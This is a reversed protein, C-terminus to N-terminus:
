HITTDKRNKRVYDKIKNNFEKSYENHIKIEIPLYFLPVDALQAPVQPCIFRVIDKETTIIIKDKGLLNDFKERILNLDRESYLHHDSFKLYEMYNVMRSVHDLLPYINEIGAFILVSSIKHALQNKDTLTTPRLPLYNIYSYLLQQHSLPKITDNLDRALIPSLPRMTKTVIIIDARSAGARFERLKGVPLIYDSTYLKHFDTLLISLGPKVSRHQYADDLIIVEINPYQKKIKRIGNVRNEDVAVLINKFKKNIQLAEDGIDAVTSNDDAIKFGKTKRKYGRSLVAIKYEDSLLRILYEVHPTKGTGGVSLNGVSIIPIDFSTAKFIGWDYMKNRLMLLIGYILGFPYLLFRLINV